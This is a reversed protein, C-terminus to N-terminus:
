NNNIYIILQGTFDHKHEADFNEIYSDDFILHSVEVDNRDFIHFNCMNKLYTDRFKKFKAVADEQHTIHWEGVMHKVNNKIFDYNEDTFIFYEGGECDFKLFDIKSINNTAIFDKFSIGSYTGHRNDHIFVGDAPVNAEDFSVETIAKNVITVPYGEMNKRLASIITPSPEVCYVHSPSKDMISYSFAGANAGFDVVVDGQNVNFYKEYMKNVFIETEFMEAYEPLNSGWDFKRNWIYVMFECKYTDIFNNDFILSKLDVNAGWVIQQTTCSVVKYNKFRRLYKDRFRKFKERCGDYNLHVEMAIYEVNNLLFNINEDAFISYEGGECDIKLFNIRDINNDAVFDIFSTTEFDNSGGFINVKDYNGVIAKNVYEVPIASENYKEINERLQTTLVKSPEVCYVKSPQKNLITCIFPGVSAGVDVVVDDKKVGRWYGYVDENGIERKITIIDDWTLTGWDINNVIESNTVAKAGYRKLPSIGLKVLNDQLVGLTYPDLQDYYNEAIYSFLKRSEDGKGWWWAALAKEFVILHKGTYGMRDRLPPLDFNACNLGLCAILYGDPFNQYYNDFKALLYYAEPRDPRFTIAHKYVGRVTNHRNDHRDYCLGVKLLSEYALDDDATREAARLYFSIAAAYQGQAEYLTALFFNKEANEPDRAYESIAFRLDSMLM